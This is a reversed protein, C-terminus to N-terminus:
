KYVIHIDQDPSIPEQFWCVLAVMYKCTFVHFLVPNIVTCYPCTQMILATCVGRYLSHSAKSLKQEHINRSRNWHLNKALEKRIGTLLDDNGYGSLQDSTFLNL